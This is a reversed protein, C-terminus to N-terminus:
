RRLTITITTGMGARSDVRLHAGISEARERMGTLGFREDSPLSEADVDFGDGDDAVSLTLMSQSAKGGDLAVAVHEAQAHREANNLAEQAMFYLTNATEAPLAPEQGRQEFTAEFDGRQSAIQALRALAGALGLDDVQSARLGAVARRTEDLGERVLARAVDVEHRASALGPAEDRRLVADIANVQVALAALKHAVTDHLDRSLRIRERSTALQERVQAQEALRQNAQALLAGEARQQDALSAVFYCVILTVLALAVFAFPNLIAAPLLRMLLLAPIVTLIISGGAWRWWGRRGDIWAGLVTPILSFFLPIPVSASIQQLDEPTLARPGSFGLLGSGAIAILPMGFSELAYIIITLALLIRLPRAEPKHKRTWLTAGILLILSPQVLWGLLPLMGAGSFLAAASAGILSPVLRLILSFRILRFVESM